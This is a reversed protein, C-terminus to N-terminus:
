SGNGDLWDLHAHMSNGFGSAVLVDRWDVNALRVATYLKELSGESLKLSASRIREIGEAGQTDILPLGAGCEAELLATAAARHEPPFLLELKRSVKHGLPIAPM